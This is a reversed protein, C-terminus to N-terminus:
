LRVRQAYSGNIFPLLLARNNPKQQCSDCLSSKRWFASSVRYCSLSRTPAQPTCFKYWSIEDILICTWLISSITLRVRVRHRFIRQEHTSVFLSGRSRAVDHLCVLEACLCDLRNLVAPSMALFDPGFCLVPLQLPPRQVRSFIGQQILRSRAIVLM